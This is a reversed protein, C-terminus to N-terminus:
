AGSPPPVKVCSRLKGPQGIPPEPGKDGQHWTVITGNLLRYKGQPLPVDDGECQDFGPRDYDGVINWRCGMLDYIHECYMEAQPGNYCARLCFENDSIFETWHDFQFGDGFVLGGIPNGLGDQGSPDLEGGEDGKPINVKTFNGTATIQVYHQTRVFHLNKFTGAPILRTGYGDKSCYSVAVREAEGVTQVTPPAFLCFDTASKIFVNQCRSNATANTGCQNYGYQGRLGDTQYPLHNSNFGSLVASVIIPLILYPIGLIFLNM